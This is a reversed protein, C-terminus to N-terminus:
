EKPRYLRKTERKLNANEELLGNLIDRPIAVLDKDPLTLARGGPFATQRKRGSSMIKRLADADMRELVGPGLMDEMTQAPNHKNWEKILVRNLKQRLRYESSDEPNVGKLAWIGLWILIRTADLLKLKKLDAFEKVRRHIALSVVLYKKEERSIVYKLGDPRKRVTDEMLDKMYYKGARELGLSLVTDTLSMLSVNHVRALVKLTILTNESTMLYKKHTM